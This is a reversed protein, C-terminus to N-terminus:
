KEVNEEIEQGVISVFVRQSPFIESEAMRKM